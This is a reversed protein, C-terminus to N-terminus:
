VRHISLIRRLRKPEFRASIAALAMRGGRAHVEEHPFAVRRDAAPAMEEHHGDTAATALTASM